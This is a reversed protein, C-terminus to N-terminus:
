YKLNEIAKDIYYNLRSQDYHFLYKKSNPQNEKGEFVANELYFFFGTLGLNLQSKRKNILTLIM